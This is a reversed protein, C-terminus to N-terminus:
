SCRFTLTQNSSLCRFNITSCAATAPLARHWPRLKEEARKKRRWKKSVNEQRPKQKKFHFIHVHKPWKFRM